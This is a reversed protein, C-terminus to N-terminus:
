KSFLGLQSYNQNDILLIEREVEKHRKMLRNILKNLKKLYTALRYREELSSNILQNKGYFHNFLVEYCERKFTLLRERIEPRVKGSQISFLWGHIHQIPLCVMNRSQKEGVQVSWVTHEPGLIEDNKIGRVASEANLGIAEAIPQIAIWWKNEREVALIDTDHFKILESKM